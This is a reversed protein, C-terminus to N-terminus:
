KTPDYPSSKTLKGGHFVPLICFFRYIDSDKVALQVMLSMVTASAEMCHTQYAAQIPAM